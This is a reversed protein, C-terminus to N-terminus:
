KSKMEYYEDLMDLSRRLMVRLDQNGWFTVAGSDDDNDRLIFPGRIEREIFRHIIVPLYLYFRLGVYKNGDIVVEILEIRGTMEEAYVNVRM